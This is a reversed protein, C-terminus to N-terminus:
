FLKEFFQGAEVFQTPAKSSVVIVHFHKPRREDFGALPLASAKKQRIIKLTKPPFPPLTAV